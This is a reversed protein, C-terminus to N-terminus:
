IGLFRPKRKERFASVGEAFDKTEMCYIQRVAEWDLCTEFDDELAQNINQKMFSIAKPSRSSILRAVEKAHEFLLDDEIVENILGLSM